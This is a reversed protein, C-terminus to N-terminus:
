FFEVEEVLSKSEDKIGGGMKGQGALKVGRSRQQAVRRGNRRGAEQGNLEETVCISDRGRAVWDKGFM